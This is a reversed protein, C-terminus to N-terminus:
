LIMHLHVLFALPVGWCLGHFLYLSPGQTSTHNHQSQQHDINEDHSLSLNSNSQRTHPKVFVARFM